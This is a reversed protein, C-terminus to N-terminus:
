RPTALILIGVRTYAHSFHQSLTVSVERALQYLMRASVATTHTRLLNKEAEEIKWDYGYGQSEYGGRSHVQKVKQLYELPFRSSSRPEVM